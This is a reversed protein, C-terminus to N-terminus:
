YVCLIVKVKNLYKRKNASAKMEGQINSNTQIKKEYVM